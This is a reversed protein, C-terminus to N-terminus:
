TLTRYAIVQIDLTQYWNFSQNWRYTLTPLSHHHHLNPASEMRGECVELHTSETVTHGSYQRSLCHPCSGTPKCAPVWRMQIVNRNRSSQAGINEKDLPMLLTINKLLRRGVCEASMCNYPLPPGLYSCGLHHTPYSDLFLAAWFFHSFSGVFLITLM